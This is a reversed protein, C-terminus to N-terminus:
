DASVVVTVNPEGLIELRNGDLLVAVVPPRIPSWTESDPLYRDGVAIAINAEHRETIPNM